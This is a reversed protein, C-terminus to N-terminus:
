GFRAAMKMYRPQLVLTPTAAIPSTALAVARAGVSRAAQDALARGQCIASTLEEFTSCIPSVAELQEQQVEPTLDPGSGPKPRSTRQRLALEAVPAPQGTAPDVLLFEEEVGFTRPIGAAPGNAPTNM